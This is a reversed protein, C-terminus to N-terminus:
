LSMKELIKKLDIKKKVLFWDTGEYSYNQQWEHHSNYKNYLRYLISNENKMLGSREDSFDKIIVGLGGYKPTNIIDGPKPIYKM